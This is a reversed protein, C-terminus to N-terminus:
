KREAMEARIDAKYAFWIQPVAVILAAAALAIVICQILANRKEMEEMLTRLLHVRVLESVQEHEIAMESQALPTCLWASYKILTARSATNISGSAIADRIEQASARRVDFQNM